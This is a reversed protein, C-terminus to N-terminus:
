GEQVKRQQERAKDMFAQPNKINPMKLPRKGKRAIILTGSGLHRELADIKVTIADVESLSLEVREPRVVGYRIAVRMDTVLLETTYARFVFLIGLFTNLAIVILIGNDDWMFQMLRGSSDSVGSNALWDNFIKASYIFVIGAVILMFRHQGAEYIVTENDRLNERGFKRM